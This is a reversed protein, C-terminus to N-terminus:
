PRKLTQGTIIMNPDKINNLKAIAEVTTGWEKALKGLTDGKKITYTGGGTTAPTTAPTPAPTATLPQKGGYPDVMFDPAQGYTEGYGLGLQHQQLPTLMTRDHTDLARGWEVGGHQQAMQALAQAAQHQRNWDEVGRGYQQTQLGALHQATLDGRRAELDMFQPNFYEQQAQMIKDYGGGRAVGRSVATSMGKRAADQERQRLTTAQPDIQLNAFQSAQGQMQEPTQSYQPRNQMLQQLIQEYPFQTPQFGTLPNNMPM